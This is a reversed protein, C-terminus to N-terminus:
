GTNKGADMQRLGCGFSNDLELSIWVEMLLAAVVRNGAVVQM